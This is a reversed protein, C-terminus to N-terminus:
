CYKTNLIDSINLYSVIQPIYIDISSSAKTGLIYSKMLRTNNRSRYIQAKIDNLSTSYGFESNVPNQKLTSILKYTRNWPNVSLEKNELILVFM